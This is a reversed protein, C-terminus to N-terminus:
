KDARPYVYFASRGKVEVRYGRKALARVTNPMCGKYRGTEVYFREYGYSFALNAADELMEVKTKEM